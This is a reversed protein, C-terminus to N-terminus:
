NELVMPFCCLKGNMMIFIEPNHFKKSYKEVQAETLSCFEGDEDGCLFFKGAIVDYLEGTDPHQLGRNLPLGSLKGEENCVLVVTDEFPYIVQILGGVASQLSKLENTIETPYPHKEPEMMLIKM